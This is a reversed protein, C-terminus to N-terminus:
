SLLNFAQISAPPTLSATLLCTHYLFCISFSILLGEFNFPRAAKYRANKFTYRVWLDGM